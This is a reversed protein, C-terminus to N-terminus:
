HMGAFPPRPGGCNPCWISAGFIGGWTGLPTGGFTSPPAGFQAFVDWHIQAIDGADPWRAAAPNSPLYAAYAQALGTRIQNLAAENDCGKQRLAVRLRNTALHGLYSDNAAVHQAVCAYADGGACALQYYGLYNGSQAAAAEAPTTYCGVGNCALGWPDIRSIPNDGVYAYTSWSGGYLGIPDSETYRGTQPDYDRFYNYNLGTEAQYYQGPFRLNYSFTGLGSPNTNPGISGFTDPDWRWMLSNDSPRTIKRVAGLHDSHIYYISIGSGNPQLTAVPIDGMWITEEILAGTSSYEGIIHGVEDYMLITTGAAGSKEILQGLANYVYNTTGSSNTASVMRGRQNYSYSNSAYGTTNGAADYSYTRVIGGSTSAIENNTSTITATYAVSGTETLTNGNADYTYGRTLASSSGSTVRDLLDYGFTWSNSSLGSDSLGTIRLANDETYGNTVGATVIQNPAGDETYSRSVTSTNGWTWGNVPGFPDYTAGSLITTNNVAISSIQHNSYTYTVTQGSPTLLTVLDGNTYAYGASLAVGAVTQGKGNVRGLADYTWAMSHYNDSAGTLRGVGNTGSDYTLNITNDSYAMQTLRNLADYSYTAVAGRADTATKLNGGSDYTNATTGTDPSVLQTLDGFGNHSYSTTLGRPDKASALNDNADYGLKTVGSNPDTIQTLRNLADYQDATNRSLPAAISTQNHDNDYGYATTVAPTGASNIDEYLNNLASFVRTHTRHLTGSPDYSSKATQNGMNDLTYSIYNGASDTITTLRHANDYTYTIMSSDPLTVQKLLGTPYYSYSTTETGVQRSTLRLKADYTLTTVVGNADTITLPQRHANYTNFTWVHGLADTITQVAGCQYGTTCTYYSYTTTCNVDTRPCVATLVRGYSDYTYTWTRTIGTAPDTVTKTLLNGNSDYNFTTTTLATGTGTANPYVSIQTPLRYTSSWQTTITRVQSTGYAETRSTELNRSLNFTHTTVESNFDTFQSVNGNADHSWSETVNGSGSAPPQTVSEDKNYSLIQEFQYTRATGLPDTVVTTYDPSSYNFSYKNVGGALQDSTAFNSSNYTISEYLNGSEDTVGTLEGPVGAAGSYSYSRSTGDPYTVSTLDGAGDYGYTYTGGGPDTMQNVQGSSNYTWSITHGFPGTETLLYGPGPAINSPTSSTSYTFTTTQGNRAIRQQLQGTGPTYIERSDDERTVQWEVVGSNTIQTVRENIDANQTVANNPGSFQIFRGDDTALAYAQQDIAIYPFCYSIQQSNNPDVWYSPFCSQYPPTGYPQSFDLFGNTTISSFLGTESRYTRVYSLGSPGSYDTEVQIKQGTAASIPDGVYSQPKTPPPVSSNTCTPCPIPDPPYRPQCSLSDQRPNSTGPITHDTPSYGIDPCLYSTQIYVGGPTNTCTGSTCTVITATQWYYVSGEYLIALSGSTTPVPPGQLYRCNSPCTGYTWAAQADAFAAAVTTRWPTANGNSTESDFIFVPTVDVAPAAHAASGLVLGVLAALLNRVACFERMWAVIKIM